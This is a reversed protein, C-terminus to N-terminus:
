TAVIPDDLQRQTGPIYRVERSGNEKNFDRSEIRLDSVVAKMM